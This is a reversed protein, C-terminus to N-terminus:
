QPMRTPKRTPKRTFAMQPRGSRLARVLARVRDAGDGEGDAWIEELASGVIVGDTGLQAAGRATAADRIGFGALIPLHPATRRATQVLSRLDPAPSPGRTGTIGYRSVLYLFGRSRRAIRRVRDPDAGPAVFRVLDLRHSRARESWDDAEDEALDPVILASAGARALEQLAGPSGDRLLPNVYSMVAVPLETAASRVTARVDTWDTGHELSRAAAEALVPGDAIPDSFPIGIEVAHAGASRLVRLRAAVTPNRRRDALLYPVVLFDGRARGQALADAVTTM